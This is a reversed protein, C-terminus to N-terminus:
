GAVAGGTCDFTGPPADHCGCDPDHCEGGAHTNRALLPAFEEVFRRGGEQRGADTLRFLTRGDTGTRVRIFGVDVLDELGRRVDEGRDPLFRAVGDETMDEHFGEGELWFLVQLLEDRRRLRAVAGGDGAGSGSRDRGNKGNPDRRSSSM